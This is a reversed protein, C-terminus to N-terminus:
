RKTRLKTLLSATQDQNLTRGERHQFETQQPNPKTFLNEFFNVALNKVEEYDNTWSSDENQLRLIKNRAIHSKVTGHFFQHKQRGKEDM